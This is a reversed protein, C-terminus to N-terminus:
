TDGFCVKPKTERVRRKKKENLRPPSKLRKSMVSGEVGEGVWLLVGRGSEGYM